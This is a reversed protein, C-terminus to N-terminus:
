LVPFLLVCVCGCREGILSPRVFAQDPNFPTMFGLSGMAVPLMPPVPGPFQSAVHLVTGDGGFCVILDMLDILCKNDFKNFQPLEEDCLVWV